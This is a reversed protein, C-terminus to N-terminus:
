CLVFKRLAEAVGGKGCDGTSASAAAKLEASANGMAIGLGAFRIMDLDNASDGIAISDEREIGLTNLVLEMAKGKTEGKIIVESYNTFLNIKFFPELLRREDESAFGELTLKTILDGSSKRKFDDPSNVYIPAKATGIRTSHNIIYCEREGELVCYGSKRVYWSIIKELVDEPIWKNYITEYCPDPCPSGALM